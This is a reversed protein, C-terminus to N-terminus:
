TGTLCTCQDDCVEPLSQICNWPADYLLDASTYALPSQYTRTRDQDSYTHLPQERKMLRILLQTKQPNPSELRSKVVSVMMLHQLSVTVYPTSFLVQKLGCGYASLDRKYMCIHSLTKGAAATRGSYDTGTLLSAQWDSKKM